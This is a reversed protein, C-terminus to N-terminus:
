IIFVEHLLQIDIVLNPPTYYQYPIIQKSLNKFLNYYSVAFAILFQQKEIKIKEKSAKQLKDQGKIQQIEDKCCNSKTIIESTNCSQGIQNVCDEAKGFYSIDILFDGCFHKEITLSFTSFLVLLALTVSIIKKYLHKMKIICLYM